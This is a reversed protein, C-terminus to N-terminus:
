MKSKGQQLIEMAAAREQLLETETAKLKKRAFPSLSLGEKVFWEGGRCECPFSFIIGTQVGYYGKDNYVAMGVTEGLETGTVLWTRVCDAAANAASMASSKGRATIIAKGRQQVTELFTGQLWATDDRLTESLPTKGGWQNRVYGDTTADAYQTASHNGWIIVNKVDDVGAGVKLAIQASARNYDLRTMACFNKAPIRTCQRLTVLCNTNAPNAVCLVKIDPSAVRDIAQGMSLFIRTNAQILDKRLMGPKRPFGGVLIGVDADRFAELPDATCVIGALCPFACDLLEMRVGELAAVAQPIELLRLEVRAAPGFVRGSAIMPLLAYGINGGAGTVVVKIPGGGAAAPPPSPPCPSSM